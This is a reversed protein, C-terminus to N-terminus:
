LICVQINFSERWEKFGEINGYREGALIKNIINSLTPLTLKITEVHDIVEDFMIKFIYEDLYHPFSGDHIFNWFLLKGLIEYYGNEYLILDNVLIHHDKHGEFISGTGLDEFEYCKFDDWFKQTIYRFIGGTDYASCFTIIKNIYIIVGFVLVKLTM